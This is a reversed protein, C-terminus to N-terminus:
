EAVMIFAEAAGATVAHMLVFDALAGIDSL